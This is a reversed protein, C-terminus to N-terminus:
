DDTTLQGNDTSVASRRRSFAPNKKKQRRDETEQRSYEERILKLCKVRRLRRRQAYNV